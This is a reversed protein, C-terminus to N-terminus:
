KEGNPASDRGQIVPATSDVGRDDLVAEADLNSGVSKDGDTRIPAVKEGQKLENPVRIEVLMGPLFDEPLEDLKRDDLVKCVM